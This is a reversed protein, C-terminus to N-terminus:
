QPKKGTAEEYKEDDVMIEYYTKKVDNQVHVVDDEYKGFHNLSESGVTAEIDDIINDEEDALVGDAYFTLCVIKYTGDDGFEDPSIVFPLNDAKEEKEEPEKTNSYNVYKHAKLKEKYTMKDNVDEKKEPKKDVKKSKEVGPKKYTYIEKVSAVEEETLKRYKNKFFLGAGAGGILAGAVFSCIGIVSKNM